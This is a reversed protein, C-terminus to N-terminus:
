PYKFVMYNVAVAQAVHWQGLMGVMCRPVAAPRIRVCALRMQRVIPWAESPLAAVLRTVSVAMVM